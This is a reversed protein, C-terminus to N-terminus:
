SICKDAHSIFVMVQACWTILINTLIGFYSNSFTFLTLNHEESSEDDDGDDDGYTKFQFQFFNTPSFSWIAGVLLENGGVEGVIPTVVSVAREERHSISFISFNRCFFRKSPSQFEEVDNGGSCCPTQRPVCNHSCDRWFCSPFWFKPFNRRSIIKSYILKRPVFSRELMEYILGWCLAIEIQNKM